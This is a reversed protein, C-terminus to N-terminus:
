SARDNLWARIDDPDYRRQRGVKFSRPGTGAHNMSYLSQSTLRLYAAAEAHTWLENPLGASISTNVSPISDAEVPLIKGRSRPHRENVHLVRPETAAASAIKRDRKGAGGM